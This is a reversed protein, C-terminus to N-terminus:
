CVIRQKCYRTLESVTAVAEVPQQAKNAGMELTLKFEYKKFFKDFLEGGYTGVAYLEDRAADYELLIATLPQKAPGDLVRAGAAPDYVSNQACCHIVNPRRYIKSPYDRFSIFSIERTPYALEHACIASYAVVSRNAGVGGAWIYRQGDETKLRVESNTPQGLKLLFCPTGVYPYNFIYNHNVKLAGAKIPEGHEDVLRARSYFRPSAGAGFAAGCYGAAVALACFTMFERREM